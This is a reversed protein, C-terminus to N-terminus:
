SQAIFKEIMRHIFRFNLASNVGFNLVWPRKDITKQLRYRRRNSLWLKDYVTKDYQKMFDAGFDNKEFCAKAQWGAYRGSVMAQGIGEGTAPDILSAADGCLLFRKGSIITKRSGLPLDYARIEDTMEANAFRKQIYPVSQIIKLMEDRLNVKNVAIHRSLMGLGVNACNDPLPFIWFYGPLIDKCFHLEYVGATMGEVNRYYARVAASHHYLDITDQTLKKRAVSHAGDCAILLKANIRIDNNTSIFVGEDTIKVDTLKTGQMVKVSSIQSVMRYLFNDFDLRKSIFGSESFTLDLAKGNPAFVRCTNVEEKLTFEELAQKYAPNITNLVKPVYAAVAGGCIKERPFHEKELVVVKLGSDALALAATMGAPGGGCIVVDCEEFEKQM